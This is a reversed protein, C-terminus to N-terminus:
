QKDKDDRFWEEYDFLISAVADARTSSTYAFFRKGHGVLLIKEKTEVLSFGMKVAQDMTNEEYVTLAGTKTKFAM